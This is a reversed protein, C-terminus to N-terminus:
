AKYKPQSRRERIVREAIARDAPSSTLAKLESVLGAQALLQRAQQQAGAARMREAFSARLLDRNVEAPTRPDLERQEERLAELQESAEAALQEAELKMAQAAKLDQSAKDRKMQIETLKSELTVKVEEDTLAAEVEINPLVPNERSFLPAATLVQNRSVGEGVAGLRPQGDQNWHDKNEPDLRSLSELIQEQKMNLFSPKRRETPLVL